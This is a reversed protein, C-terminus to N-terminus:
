RGRADDAGPHAHAAGNQAHVPGLVRGPRPGVATGPDTRPDARRVPRDGAVHCFTLAWTWNGAISAIVFVVVAAVIPLGRLPVVQVQLRRPGPTGAVTGAQVNRVDTM